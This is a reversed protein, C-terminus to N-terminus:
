EAWAGRYYEFFFGVLAVMLLGVGLIVIWIAFVFGVAITATSLAVPLPWWSTPSFFGYDPDADSILADKRDEPRYGVRRATYLMYFSILFSLAGTLALATTGIVEYSLFWYVIAVVGFFLTAIAFLLGELKM